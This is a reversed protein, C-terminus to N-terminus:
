RSEIGDRPSGDAAEMAVSVTLSTAVVTADKGTASSRPRASRSRSYRRGARRERHRLAPRPHLDDGPEPEQDRHADAGQLRHREVPHRDRHGARELVHMAPKRQAPEVHGDRDWPQSAHHVAGQHPRRLLPPHDRGRQRDVVGGPLHLERRRSARLHPPRVHRRRRRARHVLGGLDAPFLHPRRFERQLPEFDVRQPGIGFVENGIVTFHPDEAFCLRFTDVMAGAYNLRKTKM